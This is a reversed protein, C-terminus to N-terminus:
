VDPGLLQGGLPDGATGLDRPRGALGRTFCNVLGTFSVVLKQTLRMRVLLSAFLPKKVLNGVFNTKLSLFGWFGWSFAGM